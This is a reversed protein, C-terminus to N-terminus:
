VDVVFQLYERELIPADPEETKKKGEGTRKGQIVKLVIPSKKKEAM